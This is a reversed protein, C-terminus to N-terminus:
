TSRQHQRMCGWFAQISRFPLNVEIWQCAYDADCTLPEIPTSKGFTSDLKSWDRLATKESAKCLTVDNDYPMGRFLPVAFFFMGPIPQLAM